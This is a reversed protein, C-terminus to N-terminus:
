MYESEYPLVVSVCFTGDTASTQLQGGLMSARERMGVLGHGGRPLSGASDPAQPNTITMQLAREDFRLEVSTSGTGHKAANTLVEQLIRYAGQDVRPELSRPRGHSALTIALGTSAHQSILTDLAALGPPTEVQENASQEERLTSVIQDIEAVTQRAVDEITQLAQQSREPDRHHLLRAAGAHVAIVNIAHGASDHLDRAIRAREEAAALRRERGAEQETRLAQRRLEAIEARRLRARDGAFWAVTWVLGGILVDTGPLTDHGLADAGIHAAFLASVAFTTRSRWPRERDRSSALLYLAVTAGIPPGTPYGLAMSTASAITTAAFVGLPARRWVLLPLSAATALLVGIVDLHRSGKGHSLVLLTLGFAVTVLAGDILLASRPWEARSV